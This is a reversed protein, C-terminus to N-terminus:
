EKVRKTVLGALVELVAYVKALVADTKPTPTLNVVAVAAAHVAFLALFISEVNAMLFTFLEM